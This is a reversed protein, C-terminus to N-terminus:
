TVSFKTVFPLLVNMICWCPSYLLMLMHTHTHTYSLVKLCLECSQSLSAKVCALPLKALSFVCKVIQLNM